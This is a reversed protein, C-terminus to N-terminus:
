QSPIEVERNTMATKKPISVGDDCTSFFSDIIDIDCAVALVIIVFDVAFAIVIVFVVIDVIFLVDDDLEALGRSLSL